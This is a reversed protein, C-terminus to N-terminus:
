GKTFAKRNARALEIDAKAKDVEASYVGYKDATCEVGYFTRKMGPLGVNHGWVLKVKAPEKPKAPEKRKSTAKSKTKVEDNVTIKKEAM